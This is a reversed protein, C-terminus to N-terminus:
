RQAETEPTRFGLVVVDRSRASRFTLDIVRGSRLTAHASDPDGSADPEIRLLRMNRLDTDVYAARACQLLRRLEAVDQLDWGAPQFGPETALRRLDEDLYEREVRRNGM